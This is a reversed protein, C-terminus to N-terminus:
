NVRQRKVPEINLDDCDVHMSAYEQLQKLQLFRRMSSVPSERHAEFNFGFRFSHRIELMYHQLSRKTMGVFAAAEEPNLEIFQTTGDALLEMAGDQLRIWQVVMHIIENM